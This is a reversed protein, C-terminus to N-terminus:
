QCLSECPVGDKDGDLRTLGCHELYYKAEECSTMEKCYRKAGCDYAKPMTQTPKEAKVGGHRWEWPPVQQSKPLAWLGKQSAKAQEELAYLNKDNAYQRYVWAAGTRVMEANVDIDEQYVRAVTRGYRDVEEQVVKVEKGFILSSLVQRAKQGYPQAKEPTDIQSLRIKKQTKDETLLTFTDGDAIAVVKGTYVQCWASNLCLLLVFLYVLGCYIRYM